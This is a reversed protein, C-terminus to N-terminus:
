RKMIRICIDWWPIYHDESWIGWPINCLSALLEMKGESQAVEHEFICLRNATAWCFSQARYERLKRKNQGKQMSISVNLQTFSYDLNPNFLGQSLNNVPGGCGQFYHVKGQKSLKKNTNLTPWLSSSYCGSQITGHEVRWILGIEELRVWLWLTQFDYLFLRMKYLQTCFDIFFVICNPAFNLDHFFLLVFSNIKHINLHYNKPLKLCQTKSLTNYYYLTVFLHISRSYFEDKIGVDELHFINWNEEQKKERESNKLSGICFNDFIGFTPLLSSMASALAYVDFEDVQMMCEGVLNVWAISRWFITASFCQKWHIFNVHFQICFSDTAAHCIM